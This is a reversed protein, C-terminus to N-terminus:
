SQCRFHLSLSMLLLQYPRAFVARQSWNICSFLVCFYESFLLEDCIYNHDSANKHTSHIKPQHSREKSVQRSVSVHKLRLEKFILQEFKRLRKDPTSQWWDSITSGHTSVNNTSHRAEVITLIKQM